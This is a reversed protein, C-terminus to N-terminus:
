QYAPEPVKFEEPMKQSQLYEKILTIMERQHVKARDDNWVANKSNYILAMKLSDFKNKNLFEVCKVNFSKNSYASNISQSVLALNGFTDLVETSVRNADVEQPTQPSIHEVSNKATIRFNRWRPEKKGMESSKLYWLMFELKYFWYHPFATGRDEELIHCDLSNCHGPNNLFDHSREILPRTDKTCHLHNDLYRLYAYHRELKGPYRHFWALLPTLWYHTTIQQSHYLMSQLLAFGDGKTSQKRELRSTDKNKHLERILHLEEGEKRVWKIVHKDFCYRIEWPLEIFSKIQAKTCEKLFHDEFLALLEKDLIRPLDGKGNQHLWIRLTHQLLLPFSIISRVQVEDEDVKDKDIEDEKKASGSLIESLSSEKTIEEATTQQARLTELVKEACALDERDELSAENDYLTEIKLEALSQINKEVYNGMHACANWLVEYHQRETAELHELLRAKLIEHHQLQVGRNNIVEFLKNLDTHSPVQTLVLQVKNLIFCTFSDQDIEQGQNERNKLFSKIAALADEITALEDATQSCSQTKAKSNDIHADFFQAVEPQIAFHIRLQKKGEERESYLFPELANRWVLAMMWLTTFRQQGDILELFIEGEKEQAVVLTNGLYFFPKKQQYATWLDELLTDIQIKNWM